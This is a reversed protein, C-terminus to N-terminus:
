RVSNKDLKSINRQKFWEYIEEKIHGPDEYTQEDKLLMQGVSLTSNQVTTSESNSTTSENSSTPLLYDVAEYQVDDVLDDLHSEECDSLVPPTEYDSNANALREVTKVPDLYPAPEIACSNAVLVQNTSSYYDPSDYM